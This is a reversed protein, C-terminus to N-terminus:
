EKAARAARIKDGREKSKKQAEGFEAKTILRFKLVNDIGRPKTVKVYKRAHVGAEVLAKRGKTINEEPGFELTGENGKDLQGIYGMYEEIMEDPIAKKPTKEKVAIKEQSFKPM